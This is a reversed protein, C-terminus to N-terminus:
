KWRKVRKLKWTCCCTSKVWETISKKQKWDNKLHKWFPLVLFYARIRILTKKSLVTILECNLRVPNMQQDYFYKRNQVGFFQRIDKFSHCDFRLKIQQEFIVWILYGMIATIITLCSWNETKKSIKLTM